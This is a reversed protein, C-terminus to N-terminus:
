DSNGQGEVIQREGQVAYESSDPLLNIVVEVGADGPQAIQEPEVRGSTAVTESVARYNYAQEVSM